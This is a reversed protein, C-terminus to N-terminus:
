LYFLRDSIVLFKRLYTFPVFEDKNDLIIIDLKTGFEAKECDEPVKVKKLYSNECVFLWIDAIVGGSIMSMACKGSDADLEIGLKEKVARLAATASNEGKEVFGTICSWLCPYGKDKGRKILLYEGNENRIWVHVAAFHEGNELPEAAPKTYRRPMRDEGFIELETNAISQLNLFRQAYNFLDYHILPYTLDAPIRSFERTEGVESSEPIPGAANIYALYLVAYDTGKETTISFATVPVIDANTAGTEEYLERHATQLPTEGKERHGGPLEWSTREKDRVFVWKGDHFAAMVSVCIDEERYEGSKLYKLKLM